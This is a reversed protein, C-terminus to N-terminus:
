VHARGIKDVLYARPRQGALFDDRVRVFGRHRAPAVRAVDYEIGRRAVAGVLDGTSRVTSEEVEQINERRHESDAEIVHLHQRLITPRLFDRVDEARNGCEHREQTEEYADDIDRQGTRAMVDEIHNHQVGKHRYHYDSEDN